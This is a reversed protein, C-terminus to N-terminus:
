YPRARLNARQHAAHNRQLRATESRTSPPPHLRFDVDPAGPQMPWRIWDMDFGKYTIKFCARIREMGEVVAVEYRPLRHAKQGEEVAGLISQRHFGLYNVVEDLPASGDIRFSCGRPNHRLLSALKKSVHTHQQQAPPPPPLANYTDTSSASQSSLPLSQPIGTPLEPLKQMPQFGWGQALADSRAKSVTGYTNQLNADRSQCAEQQEPHPPPPLIASRHCARHEVLMTGVGYCPSPSTPPQSQTIQTDDQMGEAVARLAASTAMLIAKQSSM